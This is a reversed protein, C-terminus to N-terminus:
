PIMDYITRAGQVAQAFAEIGSQPEDKRGDDVVQTSSAAPAKKLADVQAQLDSITADREGITKDKNALAAEISDMQEETLACKGETFAVTEITLLQGILSFVKNMINPTQSNDQAPVEEKRSFQAAFAKAMRDFFGEKDALPLDPVPVGAEAFDAAMAKTLKTAKADDTAVIEDVFGWELAEQATLWTEKKMLDLLDKTDKKCKRAYMEAALGDFKVLDEQMHKASDILDQLQAANKNGWEFFSTSCQHVLYLADPEMTIHKAGLSAITAASANMSVFHVTVDGHNRFAASISLATALQGGTSDILVHVPKDENQGLQFNVYAKDFDYGGVYGTLLFTYKHKAM